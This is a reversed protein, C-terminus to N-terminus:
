FPLGDDLDPSNYNATSTYAGAGAAAPAQNESSTYQGQLSELKNANEQGGQGTKEGKGFPSFRIFEATVELSIQPRGERDQYIEPKGLEGFVIIASGKKFYPMMKDFRDGWIVIKYWVTEDKGGKRVTVAVRMNTVKQGGPTFRTEPDAGLHGMIQIFNM